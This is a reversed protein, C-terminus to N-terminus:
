QPNRLAAAYRTILQDLDCLFKAILGPPLLDRHVHWDAARTKLLHKLRNLRVLAKVEAPPQLAEAAFPHLSKGANIVKAAHVTLQEELMALAASESAAAAYCRRVNPVRAAFFDTGAVPLVVARTLADRVWATVRATTSAQDPLDPLTAARSGSEVTMGLETQNGNM